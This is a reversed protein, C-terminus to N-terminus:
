KALEQQQKYFKKVKAVRVQERQIHGIARDPDNPMKYQNQKKYTQIATEESGQLAYPGHLKMYEEIEIENM